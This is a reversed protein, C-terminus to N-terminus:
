LNKQMILDTQADGGLVFTHAGVRSFGLKEYFKRAAFNNEWVGLWLVSAGAEKACSGALSLLRTGIGRGKCAAAVYLRQVEAANESVRETQAAGFNMKMYAVAAGGSEAIFFRSLPNKLEAALARASFNNEVYRRMDEETNVAAFTERFTQGGLKALAEADEEGCARITFEQM